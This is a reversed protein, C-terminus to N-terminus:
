GSRRMARADEFENVAANGSDGPMLVSEVLAGDSLGLGYKVSGDSAAERRAIRPFAIPMESELRVRLREPLERMAAYDTVRRKHLADFVQRGRYRRGGWSEFLAEWQALTRGLPDVPSSM